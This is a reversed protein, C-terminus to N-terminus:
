QENKFLIKMYDRRGYIIRSVFVTNNELRYFVMYNGCVLFRYNTDFEIVSSLPTGILPQEELRRISKTIKSITNNAAIDNDLDNSIYKKIDKLDNKADFSLVIKSM